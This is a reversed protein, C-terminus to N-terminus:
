PPTAARGYKQMAALRRDDPLAHVTRGRGTTTPAALMSNLIAEETAEIV